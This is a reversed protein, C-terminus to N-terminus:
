FKFNISLNMHIVLFTSSYTKYNLNYIVEGNTIEINKQTKQTKKKLM